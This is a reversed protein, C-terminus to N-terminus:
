NYVLMSTLLNLLTFMRADVDFGRRAAGFGEADLILLDVDTPQGNEDKLPILESWM